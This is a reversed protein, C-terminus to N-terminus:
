THVSHTRTFAHIRRLIPTHAHARHMLLSPSPGTVLQWCCSHISFGVSLPAQHVVTWLTAFLQVCSLHSLVASCVLLNSLPSFLIICVFVYVYEFCFSSVRPLKDKNRYINTHDSSNNM